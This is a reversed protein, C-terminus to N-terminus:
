TYGWKLKRRRNVLKIAYSLELFASINFRKNETGTKKASNITQVIQHDKEKQKAKCLISRGQPRGGSLSSSQLKEHEKISTQVKNQKHKQKEHGLIVKDSNSM